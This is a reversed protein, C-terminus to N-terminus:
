WGIGVAVVLKSEVDGPQKRQMPDELRVLKFWGGVDIFVHPLASIRAGVEIGPEWGDLRQSVRPGPYPYPPYPPYQPPLIVTDPPMITDVGAPNTPAVCLDYPGCGWYYYNYPTFEIRRQHWGIFEGLYVSVRQRENSFSLFAPYYRASLEFSWARYKVQDMGACSFQDYCPIIQGGSTATVGGRELAPYPYVMGVDSTPTTTYSGSLGIALRGFTLPEIAIRYRDDVLAAADAALSQLVPAAAPGRPAPTQAALTGALLTAALTLRFPRM